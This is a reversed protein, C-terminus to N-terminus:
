SNARREQQLKQARQKEWKLTAGAFDGTTPDLMSRPASILRNATEGCEPCQATRESMEVWHETVHNNSCRFDYRRKMKYTRM